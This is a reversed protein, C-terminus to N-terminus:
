LASSSATAGPRPAQPKWLQENAEKLNEDIKCNLPRVQVENRNQAKVEQLLIGDQSTVVADSLSLINNM